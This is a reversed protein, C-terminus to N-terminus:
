LPWNTDAGFIQVPYSWALTRCFGPQLMIKTHGLVRELNFALNWIIHSTLSLTCQCRTSKPPHLTITHPLMDRVPLTQWWQLWDWCQSILKLIQLLHCDWIETQSQVRDELMVVSTRVSCPKDPLGELSGQSHLPQFPRGVTSIKVRSFVQPILKRMSNIDSVCGCQSVQQLHQIFFSIGDWLLTTSHQDSAHPHFALSKCSHMTTGSAVM